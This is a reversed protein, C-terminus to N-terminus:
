RRLSASPIVPIVTCESGSACATSGTWGIGGYQGWTPSVGTFAPPQSTTTSTPSKMTTTSGSTTSPPVPTGSGLVAIGFIRTWTSGESDKIDVTMTAIAASLGAKYTATSGSVSVSGSSVSATFTPNKFGSALDALAISVSAGTNVFVHPEALFNLYGDLPTYDTGGTSGDWWDPVGDENSDKDWSPRTTTPWSELGGVDAPDDIIGKKGTYSGTYTTTGSYTEKIIRKDHDDLSPVNAGVDSLVRKYAETASQYEITNPMFPNDLFFQYTPAPSFTVQAWCAGAGNGDYVQKSSATFYGPMENGACYYQQTGPLNDEYQAKLAYHLTSSPGPKYYNNIFDVQHAGGDTVRDGYNYVVNNVISLKGQFFSLNDVGGAMSWSRGEAHAILNHHFTGANGGISAAYGHETGPPYNQHGAVNLPESILTRQLTINYADRSSFSEDITWSISCRDFIAYNSGRMGMGDITDGSIKGPRVRVHRIIVDTAGSLGLPQGQFVIGKGPATQGAITVYKDVISLRSKLTIVGGVDFVIIRPGTVETAAWRFSGKIPTSGAAYDDLTTVRLVQGGRGGRAYKGFGDAGPFALQRSRFEWVRGVVVSGDSKVTDVRWWYANLSSVGTLSYSTSSTNGKYVSSSKTATQAESESKTSVYIDYSKASSADKFTLAISGNDADAHEDGNSPSPFSPQAHIDQVDFELANLYARKDTTSGTPTFTFTAIASSSSVDFTVFSSASTWISDQRLSQTINSLVTKGNVAVNINSVGSLNDWGNHFALLTHSGANLGTVTVQLPKNGTTSDTSMGEGVLWEGLFTTAAQQNVKYRGGKLTDDVASVQVTVSGFTASASSGGNPIHWYEYGDVPREVAGDPVIQVKLALTVSAAWLLSTLFLLHM